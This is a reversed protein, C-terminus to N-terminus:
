NTGGPEGCANPALVVIVVHAMSNISMRRFDHCVRVVIWEKGDMDLDEEWAQTNWKDGDMAEHSFNVVDGARPLVTTPASFLSDGEVDVFNLLKEM